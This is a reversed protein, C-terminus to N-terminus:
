SQMRGHGHGQRHVVKCSRRAIQASEGNAKDPDIHSASGLACPGVGHGHEQAEAERPFPHGPLRARELGTAGAMGLTESAKVRLSDEMQFVAGVELVLHPGDKHVDKRSRALIGKLELEDPDGLQRQLVDKRGRAGPDAARNLDKSM